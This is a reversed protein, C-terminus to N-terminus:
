FLTTKSEEYLDRQHGPIFLRETVTQSTYAAKAEYRSFERILIFDDPMAYESIFTLETQARCWDYFRDHDFGKAVYEKTGKYPPDCYIVSDTLIPVEHYQLGIDREYPNYCPVLQAIRELHVLRELHELQAIRELHVLRELHEDDVKDRLSKAVEKLHMRRQQWTRWRELSSFDFGLADTLSFDLDVVAYHLAKKIPEVDEGYAYSNWDGGFCFLCAAYADTTKNAHFEERSVWRPKPVRGEICDVFLRMPLPNIDNIFINTYRKMVMLRHPIAGGGVFLDYFNTKVPFLDCLEAVIPNKSGQYNLGYKM